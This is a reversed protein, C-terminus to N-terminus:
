MALFDVYSLPPFWENLKALVVVWIWLDLVNLKKGEINMIGATNQQMQSPLYAVLHTPQLWGRESKM